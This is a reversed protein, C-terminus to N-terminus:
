VVKHNIDYYVSEYNKHPIRMRVGRIKQHQTLDKCDSIIM